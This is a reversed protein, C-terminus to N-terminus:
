LLIAACDYRKTTITKQVTLSMEFAGPVWAVDTDNENVGHQVLSEQVWNFTTM